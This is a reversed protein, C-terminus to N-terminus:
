MVNGDGMSAALAMMFSKRYTRGITVSEGSSLTLENGKVAAVHRSNVVFAKSCRLFGRDGLRGEVDQLTGTGTLIGRETHYLLNHERVEIYEIDRLLVRQTGARQVIMVSASEEGRIAVARRIKREFDNYSFPKIIYDLADVEYGKAAFQAMNTVFVLLVRGDLARLRRAASMGDMNPMEIDMFVIDWMPRYGELLRTPDSFVTVDFRVGPNRRSFEGLCAGLRRAAEPEDEVVAVTFM